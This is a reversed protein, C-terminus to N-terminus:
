IENAHIVLRLRHDLWGDNYELRLTNIEPGLTSDTTFTLAITCTSSGALNVGCTGGTGPFTGGAFGINNAAEFSGSISTAVATTAFNQVTYIKTDSSTHDGWNVISSVPNGMDNISLRAYAFNPAIPVVPNMNIVQGDLAVSFNAYGAFVPQYYFYKKTDSSSYPIPHTVEQIAVGEYCSVGPSFDPYITGHTNGSDDITMTGTTSFYAPYSNPQHSDYAGVAIKMCGSMEALGETHHVSYHTAAGPAVVAIPSSVCTHTTCSVANTIAGTTSGEPVELWIKHLADTTGIGINPLTPSGNRCDTENAYTDIPTSNLLSGSFNLSDGTAPLTLENHTASKAAVYFPVCKETNAVELNPARDFDSILVLNASAPRNEFEITINAAELGTTSASMVSSGSTEATKFYVIQRGSMSIESPILENNTMCASYSSYFKNASSSTASLNITYTTGPYAPQNMSNQLEIIYPYCVDSYIRSSGGDIQPAKHLSIKTPVPSIYTHHYQLKASHYYTEASQKPCLVVALNPNSLYETPITREGASAAAVGLSRFGKRVLDKCNIGDNNESKIDNYDFNATPHIFVEVGSPLYVNPAVTWRIKALDINIDVMNSSLSFNRLFPGYSGSFEDNHGLKLLDLKMAASPVTGGCGNLTGIRQIDSYQFYNECTQGVVAKCIYGRGAMGDYVTSGYISDACLYRAGVNQGFFGLIQREFLRQVFKGDGYHDFYDLNSYLHVVRSANAQIGPSNLKMGESGHLDNFIPRNSVITGDKKFGSFTFKFPVDDLVFAEFWGGFIEFTTIRMDPKSGGVAVYATVNGTLFQGALEHNVSPIYRGIMRGESRFTGIENVDIIFPNPNPSVLAQVDGYNVRNLSSSDKTVVLVQILRSGTSMELQINKCADIKEKCDYEMVTLPFDKGSVNVIVHEITAALAGSSKNQFQLSITSNSSKQSCSSVSMLLCGMVISHMLTGIKM